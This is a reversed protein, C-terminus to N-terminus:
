SAPAEEPKESDEESSEEPKAPEKGAGLPRVTDLGAVAIIMGEISLLTEMSVEIGFHDLVEKAVAFCIGIVLLWLRTSQKRNQDM